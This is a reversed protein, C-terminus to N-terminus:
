GEHEKSTLTTLLRLGGSEKFAPLALPTVGSAVKSILSSALPAM